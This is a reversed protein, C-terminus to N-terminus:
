RNGNAEDGFLDFMSMQLDVESKKTAKAKKSPKVEDLEEEAGEDMEDHSVVKGKKNPAISLSAVARVDTEDSKFYEIVAQFVFEDPVGAIGNSAFEKAKSAAFQLSNSLSKGRKIIGEFLENDDMDSLMNHIMDVGPGHPTALEMNLVELAQSKVANM